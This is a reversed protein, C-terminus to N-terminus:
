GEFGYPEEMLSCHYGLLGDDDGFTDLSVSRLITSGFSCLRCVSYIYNLYKGGNLLVM